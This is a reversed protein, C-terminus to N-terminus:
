RACLRRPCDARRRRLAKVKEQQRHVFKARDLFKQDDAKDRLVVSRVEQALEVM